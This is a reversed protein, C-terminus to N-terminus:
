AGGSAATESLELTIRRLELIPYEEGDTAFMRQGLGHYAGEAVETWETRRSLRLGDDEAAESGPYRTPIMGIIEGGNSWEIHVPTWVMDRLDEPADIDIRHVRSFPAWMYRGNVVAELIPGLRSDADAIWEFATGAPPEDGEATDHLSVARGSTAPAQELAQARLDAARAHEGAASLKLAEIMLAVWPEPDGFVVPTRKGAFVEARLAECKIADGYMQTMPIAAADLEGALSLQALARDWSGMVSLLQFLFTRLKADGPDKRVRDQLAQLTEALTRGKLDLAPATM